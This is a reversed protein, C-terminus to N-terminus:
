HWFHKGANAKMSDVLQNREDKTLRKGLIKVYQEWSFKLLEAHGGSVCTATWKLPEESKAPFIGIIDLAEVEKEGKGARILKVKGNLLIYGISKCLTGERFLTEGTELVVMETIGPLPSCTRNRLDESLKSFLSLDAINRYPFRKWVLDEIAKKFQDNIEPPLDQDARKYLDEWSFDVAKAPGKARVTATRTDGASFQSMEGLLVPAALEIPEKGDREVLVTGEYLVFGTDFSLYGEHILVQGDDYKSDEAVAYFVKAVQARADQSLLQLVPLDALNSVAAQEGM